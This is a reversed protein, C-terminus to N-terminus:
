KRVTSRRLYLRLALPISRKGRALHATLFVVGYAFGRGKTTDFHWSTVEFHMSTKPKPRKSDDISIMLANPILAGRNDELVWHVFARLMAHRLEHHDWPSYTFFDTFASQDTPHLLLRNLRAITKTGECALLAEIFNVLHQQQPKTLNLNLLQLFKTVAQTPAVIKFM